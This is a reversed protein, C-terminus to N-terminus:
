GHVAAEQLLVQSRAKLESHFSARASFSLSLMQPGQVEARADPYLYFTHHLPAPVFGFCFVRFVRLLLSPM